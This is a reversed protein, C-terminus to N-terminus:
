PCLYVWLQSFDAKLLSEKRILFCLEQVDGWMMGWEEHSGLELLLEWTDPQPTALRPDGQPFFGYGGMKPLCGIAVLKQFANRRAVSEWDVDKKKIPFPPYTLFDASFFNRHRFDTVAPPAYVMKFALRAPNQVFNQPPHDPSTYALLDSMDKESVLNDTQIEPYYRTVCNQSHFSSMFIQLLGKEPFGDLLPMESFNFQGLFSLPQFQEDSPYVEQIPLYLSGGLCSQWPESVPEEHRSLQLSPRLSRLINETFPQLEPPVLYEKM